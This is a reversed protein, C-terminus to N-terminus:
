RIAGAVFESKAEQAAAIETELQRLKNRETQQHDAMEHRLQM